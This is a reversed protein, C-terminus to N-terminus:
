KKTVELNELWSRSDNPNFVYSGKVEDGAALQDFHADDKVTFVMTMAEMRGEIKEHNIKVRKKDKDTIEVVKGKFPFRELKMESSVTAARDKNAPSQCGIALTTVFMILFLKMRFM